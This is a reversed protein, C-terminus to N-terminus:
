GFKSEIDYLCLLLCILRSICCTVSFYNIFKNISKNLMSPIAIGPKLVAYYVLLHLWMALM